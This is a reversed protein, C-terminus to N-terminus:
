IDVTKYEPNGVKNHEADRRGGRDQGIDPQDDDQHDVAGVLDLDPLSDEGEEEEWDQDANGVRGVLSVQIGQETLLIDVLKGILLLLNLQAISM